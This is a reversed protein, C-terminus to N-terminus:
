LGQLISSVDRAHEGTGPTGNQGSPLDQASAALFGSVTSRVSDPVSAIVWTEQELAKTLRALCQQHMREMFGKCQVQLSVAINEMLESSQNQLVRDTDRTNLRQDQVQSIFLLDYFNM